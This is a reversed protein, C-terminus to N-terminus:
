HSDWTLPSNVGYTKLFMGIPAYYEEMKIEYRFMSEPFPYGRCTEGRCFPREQPLPKGWEPCDKRPIIHTFGRNGVLKITSSLSVNLERREQLIWEQFSYM